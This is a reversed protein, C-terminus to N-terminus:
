SFDQYSSLHPDRRAAEFVPMYGPTIYRCIFTSFALTLREDDIAM